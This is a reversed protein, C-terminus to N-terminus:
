GLLYLTTYYMINIRVQGVTRYKYDNGWVKLTIVTKLASGNLNYSADMLVIDEHGYAYADCLQEKSTVIFWWHNETEDEGAAGVGIELRPEAPVNMVDIGDVM